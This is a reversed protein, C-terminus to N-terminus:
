NGPQVRDALEAPDASGVFERVAARVVHALSSGSRDAVEELADMDRKPLGVTLRAPYNTERRYTRVM